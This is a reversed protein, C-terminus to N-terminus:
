QRAPHLEAEEGAREHETAGIQRQRANRECLEHRLRLAAHELRGRRVHEFELLDDRRVPQHFRAVRAAFDDYAQRRALRLCSSIVAARPIETARAIASPDLWALAAM